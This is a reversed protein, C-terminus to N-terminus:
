SEKLAYKLMLIIAIACIIALISRWYSTSMINQYIPEERFADYVLQLLLGLLVGSLLLVVDKKNLRTEEVM